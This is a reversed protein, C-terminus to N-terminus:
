KKTNGAKPKSIGLKGLIRINKSGLLYGLGCVLIVPIIAVLFWWWTVEPSLSEYISNVSETKNVADGIIKIFGQYMGNFLRLFVNCVAAVSESWKTDILFGLGILLSLLINFINAGLALLLGKGSMEEMRGGDIKIKDRAGVEWCLCYQLFLYLGLSLVSSWFLLSPNARTAITLVTAFVTVGIQNLFLKVMDFTHEKFFNM